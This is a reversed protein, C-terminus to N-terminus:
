SIESLFYGFSLIGKLFNDEKHRLGKHSPLIFVTLGKAIYKAAMVKITQKPMTLSNDGM